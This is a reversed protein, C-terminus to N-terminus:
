AVPKTDSKPNSSERRAKRWHRIASFWLAFFAAKLALKVVHVGYSQDSASLWLCDFMSFFTFAFFFTWLIYAVPHRDYFWHVDEHYRKLRDSKMFYQYDCLSGLEAFRGM